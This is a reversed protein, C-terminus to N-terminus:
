KASSNGSRTSPPTAPNPSTAPSTATQRETLHELARSAAKRVIEDRHQQAIRKLRDTDGFDQLALVGAIQVKRDPNALVIDYIRPAYEAWRLAGMLGIVNGLLRPNKSHLADDYHSSHKHPFRAQLVVCAYTSFDESDDGMFQIIKGIAEDGGQAALSDILKGQPTKRVREVEKNMEAITEAVEPFQSVIANMRVSEQYNEWSSPGFALGNVLMHMLILPVLTRMRLRWLGFLLGCGFPLMAATGLKPMHGLGFIAAQIVVAAARPMMFCLQDQVYGRFFLEEAFPSIVIGLVASMVIMAPSVLPLCHRYYYYLIGAKVLLGGAIELVVTAVLLVVALGWHARTNRIWELGFGAAEPIRWLLLLPLLIMMTVGVYGLATSTVTLPGACQSTFMVAHTVGIMAILVAIRRGQWSWHIAKEESM